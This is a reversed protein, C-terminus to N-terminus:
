TGKIDYSATIQIEPVFNVSTKIVEALVLGGDILGILIM